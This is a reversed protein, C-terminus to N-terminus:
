RGCSSGSEKKVERRGAVPTAVRGRCREGVQWLLAREGM